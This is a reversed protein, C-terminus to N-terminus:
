DSGCGSGDGGGGGGGGGSTRGSLSMFFIIRIFRIYNEWGKHSFGSCCLSCFCLADGAGFICFTGFLKGSKTGENFALLSILVM